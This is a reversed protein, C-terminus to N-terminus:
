LCLMEDFRENFHVLGVSKKRCFRLMNRENGDISHYQFYNHVINLFLVLHASIGM